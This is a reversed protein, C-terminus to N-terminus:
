RQGALIKQLRQQLGKDTQLAMALKEYRETTFGKKSVATEMEEQIGSQMEEISKVASEYKEKEKDSAEVKQNPDMSAKYMENFQQIELGEEEVASVMKQQAQQNIMRIEQFAEAFKTLENDDVDVEVKQQPTMPQTQAFAGGSVLLGLIMLIGTVRKTKFM